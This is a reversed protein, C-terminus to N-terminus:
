LGGHGGDVPEAPGAASAGARWQAGPCGGRGAHRGAHGIVACLPVDGGVGGRGGHACPRPQDAVAVATETPIMTTPGPRDVVRVRGHLMNMGCAFTYEGPVEPLFQVATQANAPLTQNIKFDPFVVRSSCEGSEQRDFVLRVPVGPQVEILDPSYGGKVGVRVVQVGDELDAQRSKKPGFFYWGLLGTLVVAALIVLGDNVTM